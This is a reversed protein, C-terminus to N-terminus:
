TLYADFGVEAGIALQVLIFRTGAPIARGVENPSNSVALGIQDCHSGLFILNLDYGAPNGAATTARGAVLIKTSAGPELIWGDL